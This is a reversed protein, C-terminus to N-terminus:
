RVSQALRPTSAQAVTRGGRRDVFGHGVIRREALDVALIGAEVLQNGGVGLDFDQGGAELPAFAREPDLVAAEQNEGIDGAVAHHLPARVVAHAQIELRRAVRAHDIVAVLRAAVAQRDVALTPDMEALM